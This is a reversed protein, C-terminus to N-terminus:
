RGGVDEVRSEVAGQAPEGAAAVDCSRECQARGGQVDNGQVGRLQEEEEQQQICARKPRAAVCRCM